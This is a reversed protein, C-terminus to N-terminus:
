PDLAPIIELDAAFVSTLTVPQLGLIAESTTPTVEYADISSASYAALGLILLTSVAVMPRFLHWLYELLAEDPAPVPAPAIRRMVRDAFFPRLATESSERMSEQLLHQLAKLDALETRLAASHDLEEKLAAVEPPTLENRLFSLLRECNPTSM